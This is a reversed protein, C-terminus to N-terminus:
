PSHLEGPYSPLWGDSVAGCCSNNVFAYKLNNYIQNNHSIITNNAMIKNNNDQILFNNNQIIQKMANEFYFRQINNNSKLLIWYNPDDYIIKATDETKKIKEQLHMVTVNEYWQSMSILAVRGGDCRSFFDVSSIRGIDLKNFIDVIYEETIHNELILPIYIQLNQDIRLELGM